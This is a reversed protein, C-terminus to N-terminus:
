LWIYRNSSTYHVVCRHIAWKRSTYSKSMCSKGAGVDLLIQREADYLMTGVTYGQESTAFKEEAKIKTERIMDTRGLYTTSM